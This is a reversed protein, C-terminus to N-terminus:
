GREDLPETAATARRADKAHIDPDRLLVEAVVERVLDALYTGPGDSHAFVDRPERTLLLDANREVLDRLIALKGNVSRSTYRDLAVARVTNPRRGLADDCGPRAHFEDRVDLILRTLHAGDVFTYDEIV